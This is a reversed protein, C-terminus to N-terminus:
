SEGQGYLTKFQSEMQSVGAAVDGTGSLVSDTTSVMTDWMGGPLYVRDFYPELPHKNSAVFEDYSPQLPGLDSEANTLGPIGGIATALKSLNEPEALYDIYSLAAEKNPSSKSVGYAYGEGGVLYPNGDFSPVPMYGLNADPSFGLASGVLYNQSFVFATKGEGLARALEDQPASSYDPNIYGADVWSKVQDLLKQYPEKPFTGDELQKLQDENYAGPAMFDAINGAFWNDKGSASIPVIGAKKIKALASDFTDWDQLDAPDIGLKDLVDKNYIIGAVDTNVPLAYFRDEGDKMAAELAPNFDKAWSRSEMPELFQSYRILSWGHTSWIDPPDNSALRVKLDAEYTETMPVLDIKVGPNDKTYGDTIEKLTTLIPDTAGLNTQFEIMSSANGEAAPSDGSSEPSSVGGGTCASLLLGCALLMSGLSHVRM